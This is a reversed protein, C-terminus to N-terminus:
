PKEHATPSKTPSNSYFNKLEEAVANIDQQAVRIYIKNMTATDSWGGLKQTVKQPVNLHYALSAFSYRLGHPSIVPLGNSQCIKKLHRSFASPCGKVIQGEKERNQSLLDYLRDIFIPIVRNSSVNKTTEKREFHNYEDPVVAGCVHFTRHKFDIDQWRMGYIESLRLSHLGFLFAIEYSDGKIADTFQQIDEYTLYPRANPAIQPLSVKPMFFGNSRIVSAVFSYATKLTKASVYASERNVIKQWDTKDNYPLNMVSQFRNKQITRWGKISVPSCINSKSAIYDDIMQSLSPNEKQKDNYADIRKGSLYEAKIIRAKAIAKKETVDTVSVSKGGLRLRVRWTGSPLKEAKPIIM